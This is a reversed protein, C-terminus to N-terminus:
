LQTFIQFTLTAVARRGKRDDEWSGATALRLPKAELVLGGMQPDARVVDVVIAALALAREEVVQALDGGRFCDISVTLAYTESLWNRAGSGVMAM